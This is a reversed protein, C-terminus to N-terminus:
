SKERNLSAHPAYRICFADLQQLLVYDQEETTLMARKLMMHLSFTKDRQHNLKESKQKRVRVDEKCLLQM